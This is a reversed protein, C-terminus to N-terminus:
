PRSARTPEHHSTGGRAAVAADWGTFKVAANAGAESTLSTSPPRNRLCDNVAAPQHISSYAASIVGNVASAPQNHNRCILSMSMGGIVMWLHSPVAKAATNGANVNQRHRM